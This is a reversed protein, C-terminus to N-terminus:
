PRADGIAIVKSYPTMALDSPQPADIREGLQHAKVSGSFLSTCAQKEQASRLEDLYDAWAQMIVRREPPYQAYNYHRVSDSVGHAMQREIAESRGVWKTSCPAPPPAFDM